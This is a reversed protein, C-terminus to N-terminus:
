VETASAKEGAILAAGLAAILQPEGPVLLGVGLVEEISRVLGIDKAGGGILACDMEIGMREVLNQVKAALAYHVGALIDEVAEGEAVRSVAETEAFVACGTNFNVRNKSKLSLPGIEELGVKLVHAIVQLFRGSGAACKESQLFATVRGREDVRFVKSFQGGIDVATRVSPFLHFVGRGQCSVDTVVQDAFSANNAGYGTAATYAIDAFSLNAKTLAGKIVEDATAKYSGVSPIIHSAVINGEALVAAKSFASGIDVGVVYVM